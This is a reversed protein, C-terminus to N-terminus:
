DDTGTRRIEAFVTRQREDPRAPRSFVLVGESNYYGVEDGEIFKYCPEEVYETRSKLKATTEDVEEKLAKIESNFEKNAARKEDSVDRLKINSEVLKEKLADLEATPLQKTYGLDEVADANDRLFQVRDRLSQIEQGLVKEM